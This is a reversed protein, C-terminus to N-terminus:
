INNILNALSLIPKNNRVAHKKCFDKRAKQTQKSEWWNEIKAYNLNIFDAAKKSDFFIINNKELALYYKKIEEKRSLLYNNKLILITPVNASLTELFTTSDQNHIFIRIKKILSHFHKTSNDKKIKKNIILNHYPRKKTQNELYRITFKEKIKLNLHFFLENASKTYLIKDKFLIPLGDLHSFYNSFISQCFCVKSNKKYNYNKKLNSLLISFFPIVKKDESKWGWSLYKDAIKKQVDMNTAIKETGMKGGHQMIIYKSKKSVKDAAWIKFYDDFWYSLSTIIIKPNQPWYSNFLHSKKISDYNELYNKPFLFFMKEKIFNILNKKKESTSLFERKIKNIKQEKVNDRIWFFPFQKLNLSLLVYHLKSMQINDIM